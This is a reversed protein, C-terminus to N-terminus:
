PRMMFGGDVCLVQGTIWTSQDSLLFVCADAMDRPQGIRKIANSQLITEILAPDVKARLGSTDTPGPAIANVRINRDGLEMALNTTIGNVGLKFIGYFGGNRVWAATSTQNVIAGGGRKEMLPVIARTMVLPSNMNVAQVKSYYALDVEMLPIYDITGFIAANNVLFDAGGFQQEVVQALAAADLESSVDCRQFMATGGQMRIAEAVSEGGAEDIDAVIVAAGEAALREAYGKGIGSGGGTVVAVKDTFQM